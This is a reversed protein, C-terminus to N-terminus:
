GVYAVSDFEPGEFSASTLRVMGRTEVRGNTLMSRVLGSAMAEGLRWCDSPPLHITIEFVSKTARIYGISHRLLDDAKLLKPDALAPEPLLTAKGTRGAFRDPWLCEAVFHLFRHEEFPRDLLRPRYHQVSFNYSLSPEAVRFVFEQWAEAPKKAM